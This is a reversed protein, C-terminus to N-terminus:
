TLDWTLVLGSIQASVSTPKMQVEKLHGYAEKLHQAVFGGYTLFERLARVAAETDKTHAKDWNQSRMKVTSLENSLQRFIAEINNAM